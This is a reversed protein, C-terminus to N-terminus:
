KEGNEWKEGEQKKKEGGGTQFISTHSETVILRKRGIVVYGGRKGTYRQLMVVVVGFNGKGRGRAQRAREGKKARELQRRCLVPAIKPCPKENKFEFYM